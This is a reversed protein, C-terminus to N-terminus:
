SNALQTIVNVQAQAASRLFSARTQLDSFNGSALLAELQLGGGHLYLHRALDGVTEERADMERELGGIESEREAVQRRLAELRERAENYNEVAIGAERELQELRQEAEGMDRRAAELRERAVRVDDPEAMAAVPTTLLLALCAGM